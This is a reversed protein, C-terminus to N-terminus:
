LQAVEYGAAEALMAFFREMAHAATGDVQGLEPEFLTEPEALRTLATLAAPRFWFMTGAFFGTMRQQELGLLPALEAMRRENRAFHKRELLPLWASAPGAIGVEPKAFFKEDLRALAAPALLGDLLELRWRAGGAVHTSKKSHVKCGFPYDRAVVERLSALFPAVDRGRNASVVVHRPRLAAILRNLAAVPWAEPVSVIVDLAILGRARGILEGFEEILDAYFIHLCLAAEAGRGPRAANYLAARARLATADLAAAAVVEAVAALNAHGFRRDPELHAGEGWGNWANVFLLRQGPPFHARLHLAAAEIWRHFLV